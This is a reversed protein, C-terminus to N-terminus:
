HYGTVENVKLGESLGTAGLDGLSNLNLKLCSIHSNSKLLDGLIVGTSASLGCDTLDLSLKADSSTCPSELLGKFLTAIMPEIKVHTLSLFQLKHQKEVLFRSFLSASSYSFTNSQYGLSLGNYETLVAQLGPIHIKKSFEQTVKM